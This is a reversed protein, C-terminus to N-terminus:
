KNGYTWPRPRYLIPRRRFIPGHGREHTGDAISSQREIAVVKVDDGGDGTLLVTAAMLVRVKMKRKSSM